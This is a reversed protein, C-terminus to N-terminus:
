LRKVVADAFEQTGLSGGQDKTVEKAAYCERLAAEIQEALGVKDQHKLMMAASLMTATPNAIGKGAIDPASGHVPEFFSHVEGINGSPALGLGGVLGAAEDSLIDGYLNTTVVVDFRAPDTIIFMAAADVFLEDTRLKPFRQSVEGFTKRFAGDTVQMVNAKHVCTVKKRANDRAYTFAFRCIRKMGLDSYRREAVYAKTGDELEEVREEGVYLGETNERVIVMDPGDGVIPKVPRLNAYLDLKQRLMPVVPRYGPTGAPASQVAGLLCSDAEMIGNVTEDPLFQGTDKNCQLGAKLEILEIDPVLAVLVKVTAQVVEPGVGDGEVLAIRMM